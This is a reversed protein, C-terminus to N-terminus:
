PSIMEFTGEATKTEGSTRVEVTVPVCGLVGLPPKAKFAVSSASKGRVAFERSKAGKWLEWGTPLTISVEGSIARERNNTVVVGFTVDKADVPVPKDPLRLEIEYPEVVEFSVLAGGLRANASRVEAGVAWSGVAMDSPIISALGHSIHKGPPLGDMRIKGSSLYEGAKGEGAIVFSTVDVTEGSTNTMHFKGVLEDGRALRYDKLDFGLELPKLAAIKRAVLTCTQVGDTAERPMWGSEGAQTKLSVQFGIKRSNALRFGRVLTAPIRMEITYEDGSKSSRMEVLGAEEASVPEPSTSATGKSEYRSVTLLLTQDAGRVAKFEYNDEGHFWGDAKADLALAFDVPRSSKMAVYLNEADWDAFTGGRWSGSEFTYFTDWEGDEVSGDIVPTRKFVDTDPESMQWEFSAGEATAPGPAVEPTVPGAEADEGPADPAPPATAAPPQQALAPALLTPLAALTLIALVAVSLTRM